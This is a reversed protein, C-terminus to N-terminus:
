RFFIQLADLNAEFIVMYLIIRGYMHCRTEIYEKEFHKVHM